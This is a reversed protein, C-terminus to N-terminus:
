VPTIIDRIIANEDTDNDFFVVYHLSGDYASVTFTGDSASITEGGIKGDSRRHSRITRVASNGLSDKVTGSLQPPTNPFAETPVTFNTTYRAVGKTIRLDDIYGTLEHAAAGAELRGIALVCSPVYISSSFTVSAGAIGDKYATVVDGNKVFALHNWGVSLSPSAIYSISGSQRLLGLYARGDDGNLFISFSMNAASTRQGVLGPYVGATPLSALYVFMEITFSGSEFRWDASDAISLYDGSGDFYASYGGFKSQTASRAVNGNLTVAHGKLDTLGADDMHMALVVSNWYPDNAM